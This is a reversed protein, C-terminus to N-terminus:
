HIVNYGGLIRGYRGDVPRGGICEFGSGEAQASEPTNFGLEPQDIADDAGTYAVGAAGGGAGIIAVNAIVGLGHLDVIIRLADGIRLKQGDEPFTMVGGASCPQTLITIRNKIVIVILTTLCQLALRCQFFFEPFFYVTFDNRQFAEGPGLRVVLFVQQFGFVFQDTLHLPDIGMLPIEVVGGGHCSEIAVRAAVAATSLEAPLDILKAQVFPAM